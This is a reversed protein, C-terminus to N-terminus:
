KVLISLKKLTTKINKMFVIMFNLLDKAFQRITFEENGRLSVGHGRTDIAIVRYSKSFHEVQHIFYENNEGNGHLLIFPFGTGKEIYNLKIDM